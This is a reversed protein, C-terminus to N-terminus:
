YSSVIDVKEGGVIAPPVTANTVETNVEEGNTDDIGGGGGERDWSDSSSSRSSSASPRRPRSALSCHRCFMWVRSSAAMSLM